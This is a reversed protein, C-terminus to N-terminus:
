PHDDDLRALEDCLWQTHDIGIITLQRSSATAIDSVRKAPDGDLLAYRLDKTHAWLKIEDPWVLQSVRKPAMVLVHRIINDKLLEESATLSAITKGGGMPAVMLHGSSEYLATAMRNQYGHLESKQRM